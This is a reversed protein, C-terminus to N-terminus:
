NLRRMGRALGDLTLPVMRDPGWLERVMGISQTYEWHDEQVPNIWLHKPWQEAARALWTSGAEANWFENAGGKMAIEYPSM